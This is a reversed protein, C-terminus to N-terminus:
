RVLFFLNSLLWFKQELDRIFRLSRYLWNVLVLLSWLRRLLRLRVVLSFNWFRIQKSSMLVRGQESIHNLSVLLFIILFNLIFLWRHLRSATLVGELIPLSLHSCLISTVLILSILILAPHLHRSISWSWCALWVLNCRISGLSQSLQVTLFTSFDISVIWCRLKWGM